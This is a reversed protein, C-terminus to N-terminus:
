QESADAIITMPSDGLVEMTLTSGDVLTATFPLVMVEEVEPPQGGPCLGDIWAFNWPVEGAFEFTPAIGTRGTVEAEFPDFTADMYICFPENDDTLFDDAEVLLTARGELTTPDSVTLFFDVSDILVRGDGGGDPGEALAAALSGRFRFRGEEVVPEAGDLVDDVPSEATVSEATPTEGPAQVPFREGNPCYLEDVVRMCVIPGDPERPHDAGGDTGLILMEVIDPTTFGASLWVM